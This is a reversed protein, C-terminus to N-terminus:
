KLSSISLFPARQPPVSRYPKYIPTGGGGRPCQLQLVNGLVEFYQRTSSPSFITCCWYDHLCCFFFLEIESCLICYYYCHIIGQKHHIYNFLTTSVTNGLNRLGVLGDSSRKDIPQCFLFLLVLGAM